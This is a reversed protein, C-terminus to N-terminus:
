PSWDPTGGGTRALYATMLDRALPALSAGDASIHHVVLVLLHDDGSSFLRLRVPVSTTVDFGASMLGTVMATVDTTDDDIALGDPLVADTPLIEQYPLGDPDAPFRTRLVEHRELVDAVALRLAPVDLAGTLRLAFPMNYAASEPEIRNLLWMRQQALSLPVRDPRATRVLPVRTGGTRRITRAALASVTSAEFLDRVTVQSQMAENLRAVVRTALL